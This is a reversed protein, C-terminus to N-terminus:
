LEPYRPMLVHGTPLKGAPTLQHPAYSIAPFTHSHHASQYPSEEAMGTVLVVPRDCSIVAHYPTTRPFIVADGIGATGTADAGVRIVAAVAHRKTTDGDRWYRLQSDSGQNAPNFFKKSLM